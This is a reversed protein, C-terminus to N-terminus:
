AAEKLTEAVVSLAADIERVQASWEAALEETDTMALGNLASRESRCAVILTTVSAESLDDSGEAQGRAVEGLAMMLAAAQTAMADSFSGRQLLDLRRRAYHSLTDITSRPLIM